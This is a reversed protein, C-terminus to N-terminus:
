VWRTNPQTSTGTPNQLHTEKLTKKPKKKPKKLNQTKKPNRTELKKEPKSHVWLYFVFGADLGPEARTLNLDHSCFHVRVRM